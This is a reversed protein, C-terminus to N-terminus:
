EDLVRRIQGDDWVGGQFNKVGMLNFSAAIEEPTRHRAAAKINRKTIGPTVPKFDPIKKNKSDYKLNYLRRVDNINNCEALEASLFLTRLQTKLIKIAGAESLDHARATERFSFQLADMAIRRKEDKTRHRAM